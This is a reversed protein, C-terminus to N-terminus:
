AACTRIHAPGRRWFLRNAPIPRYCERPRYDVCAFWEFPRGELLRENWGYMCHRPRLIDSYHQAHM